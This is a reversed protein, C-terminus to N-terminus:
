CIDNTTYLFWGHKKSNKKMGVTVIDLKFNKDKFYRKSNIEATLYGIEWDAMTDVVYLVSTIYMFGPRTKIPYEIISSHLLPSDLLDLSSSVM